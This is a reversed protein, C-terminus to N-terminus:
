ASTVTVTCTATQDGAAATIVSTGAAVGTVIGNGDITAKATTASTWTIAAELGLPMVAANLQLREGAAVTAAAPLLIGSVTNAGDAAFTMSNAPDTNAINVAVFAEAIAPQGDYRATAKVVTQDQLFRVEDSSAIKIGAREALTYLDFYGFIIDNDAMDDLIEVAGGFVPMTRGMATVLAGSANFSLAKAVLTMYTAENMFWTISGNSYKHKAYGINAALAQFFAAGTLASGDFKRINSTHLDTWPRATAPYGSPQSTQALRTVVGLPMGNGTGYLGAKDVAKAIAKGAALIVEALLNLDSDELNANCIAIFGGVKYCDMTLGYFGLTLENLVGCCDTWVAEPTGGGIVQRAEGAVSIVNAHKAFISAEDAVERIYGALVEPVTLGVNTIARKHAIHDRVNAVFSRVDERSVLAERQEISLNRFIKARTIMTTNGRKETEAPAAAAAPPTTNQRAEEAALQTQLESLRAEQAAIADRHEQLEAEFADVMGQVASSEEETTEATMEEIAQTLEAERASFGDDQARLEAIAANVTNIQQRLLLARLAM